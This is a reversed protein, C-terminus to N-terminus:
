PAVCCEGDSDTLGVPSPHDAPEPAVGCEGVNDTLEHGFNGHHESDEEIKNGFMM